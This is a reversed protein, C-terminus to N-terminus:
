DSSPGGMKKYTSLMAVAIAVRIVLGGISPSGGAALALVLGLMLDAAYAVIAVLLATRSGRMTFFGLVGFLLGVILSGIGAGAGILIENDTALATAGCLGNAAALFYLFYAAQKGAEKPDDDTGPLPTGDEFAVKLLFGGLTRKELYISIPPADEPTVEAGGL